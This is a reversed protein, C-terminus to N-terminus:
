ENKKQSFHAHCEKFEDWERACSSIQGRNIDMCATVKSYSKECPNGKSAANNEDPLDKQTSKDCDVCVGNGAEKSSSAGM